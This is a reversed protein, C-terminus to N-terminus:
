ECKQHSLRTLVYCLEVVTHMSHNICITLMLIITIPWECYVFACSTRKSSYISNFHLILSGLLGTYAIVKM